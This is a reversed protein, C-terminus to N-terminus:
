SSRPEISVRNISNIKRNILALNQGISIRDILTKFFVKRMHEENKEFKEFVGRVIKRSRDLRLWKKDNEEM